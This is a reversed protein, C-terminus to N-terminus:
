PVADKVESYKADQVLGIIELDMEGGSGIQMRKGVAELGLGFKRAFAENVLAVKPEDLGDRREIERGALLPIGLTRFFDPGIENYMAHTDTDPGADFGQVSVNSGWNSGSILPVLSAAVADVGPLAQIEDELREFLQRSAEPTYNNLEPAVGFTAVREVEIGLDVRSVNLLSKTFLGASILLAMSLAIQLAVMSSRFRRAGRSAAVPGSQSKLSVVLDRRTCHLAPFLGVLGTVLWLVALFLWSQPGLQFSLALGSDVPLLAAMARLTARAVAFGLLGGFAALVLSEVLLQTVVQHRQAGISMRIAIEGARHTARVLLLNAINACAILLVFGTVALLLLLPARVEQHLRSQGQRGPELEIAKTKFRALTKDSMGGQLPVEVENIIAQYHVNIAAAAQELDYGEALRAFLYVWYSRRDEFGEWGPMMQARMSLPVFIQPEQGLTTGSFGRPAVGIITMPQGNVILSEGELDSRGQFRTQWYAHSLVVLPHAGPTLDDELTFLRGLAPRLGLVEFYSGSVLMGQSSLTDGGYALNAGFARHGAIGSFAPSARELDRFMPYSFISEVDGATNSSQSGSKPGADELNVLQDPSVVPLPKLIMQEFLSFIAANAGIGLALSLVAAVTVLPTKFLSRLALRLNIM